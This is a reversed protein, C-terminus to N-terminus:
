PQKQALLERYLATTEDAMRDASFHTELRDRGLLGMHQRLAADRLLTRLANALADSERPPVLLGTEGSVVIEPIASVGSAIVPTQRAMAELIVLGFGEWLSPALFIDFAALLPQSDQRWGLFRVRSGLPAAQIELGARLPGDGVILLYVDPFEVAVQRFAELGYTVGKQEVLRCVMGVLRSGSPLGLESCVAQHAAARDPPPVATDLGYYIRRVKRAPASETEITFRAIADSIAIAANTMPWLARNLLRVPLRYRFADDNHRSSVVVSVGALRAALTGYLDAHFLHTHVVDPQLGRLAAILRRIVLADADHYIPVRQVPISRAALLQVYDDMPKDPEVLLLLSPEVQRARLGALLALLHQEAGAARTVKIVHAVRM